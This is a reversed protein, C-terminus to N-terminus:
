VAESLALSETSLHSSRPSGKKRVRGVDLRDPAVGLVDALRDLADASPATLKREWISIMTGTVGVRLALDWQSWERAERLDRISLKEEAV